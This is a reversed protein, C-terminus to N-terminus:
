IRHLDMRLVQRPRGNAIESVSHLGRPDLIVIDGPDGTLEILEHEIGMHSKFSSLEEGKFWPEESCLKKYLETHPFLARQTLLNTKQGFRDKFELVLSEDYLHSEEALRQAHHHTGSIIFTGGGKHEVKDLFIFVFYSWPLDEGQFGPEDAHWSGKPIHWNEIPIGPMSLLSYWLEQTGWLNSDFIGNVKNKIQEEISVLAYSEKLNRMIPNMGPVRWTGRLSESVPISLDIHLTEKLDKSFNSQLQSLDEPNVFSKLRLYGFTKLKKLLDSNKVDSNKM